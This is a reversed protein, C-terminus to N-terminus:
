PKLAPCIPRKFLIHIDGGMCDFRQAANKVALHFVNKFIFCILREAFLRGLRGTIFGKFRNHVTLMLDDKRSLKRQCATKEM